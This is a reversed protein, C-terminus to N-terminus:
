LLLLLLQSVLVYCQTFSFVRCFTLSSRDHVTILSHLSHTHTSESSVTPIILLASSFRPATPRRRRSMLTLPAHISQPTLSHPLSYFYHLTNCSKNSPSPLTAIAIASLRPPSFPAPPPPSSLVPSSHRGKYPLPGPWRTSRHARAQGTGV